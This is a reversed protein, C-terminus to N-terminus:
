EAHGQKHPHLLADTMRVVRVMEKVDHIRIIDTGREIGLVVTAATGEVREEAPLDLTYGIFSKRSPGLLLPRGLVRLEDLRNLLELNQSVTKGFGIGPDLIIHEWAIGANLALAIIEELERVVDALLNEYEVGVYHGGLREEQQADKPRSRNHMLIVPVGYEAVVGAMDPDMRLGWVDNVLHAGADLAQRAVNAKYTDVSLAVDLERAIAEIAPVVRSLEEDESTPTSGPRTSEGGIDLIDVGADVMQRAREVTAAVWDDSEAMLGDGSFSDPTVNLIGMVYTRRWDCRLPGMQIPDHGEALRHLAAAIERVVSRTAMDGTADLVDLATEIERRTALAIAADNAEGVVLAGGAKELATRFGATVALPAPEILLRLQSGADVIRAIEEGDDTLRRAEARLAEPSYATLARVDILPSM